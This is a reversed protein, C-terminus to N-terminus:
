RQDWLNYKKIWKNNEKIWVRSDRLTDAHKDFEEEKMDVYNRDRICM